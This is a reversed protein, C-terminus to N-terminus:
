EGIWKSFIREIFTYNLRKMIKRVDIHVKTMVFMKKVGLTKLMKENEIFMKVGLWGKRYEPRLFFMDSFSCLVDAYHLHPYCLNFHYGILRGDRRVTLIHLVGATELNIYQKWAPQLVMHEKDLAVEEYHALFLPPLEPMLTLFFEKQFTIM